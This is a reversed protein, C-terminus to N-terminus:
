SSMPLESGAIVALNSGKYANLGDGKTVTVPAVDVTKNGTNDLKTSATAAIGSDLDMNDTPCDLRGPDMCRRRCPRRFRTRCVISTCGNGASSRMSVVSSSAYLATVNPRRLHDILRNGFILVPTSPTTFGSVRYRACCSRYRAVTFSREPRVVFGTIFILAFM